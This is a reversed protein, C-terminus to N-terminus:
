AQGAIVSVVYESPVWGTTAPSGDEGLRKASSWGSEPDKICLCDGARLTMESADVADSFDYLAFHTVSCDQTNASALNFIGQRLDGFYVFADSGDQRRVPLWAQFNQVLVTEVSQIIIDGFSIMELVTSIQPEAYLKVHTSLVRWRNGPGPEPLAIRHLCLSLERPSTEDVVAWGAKFNLYGRVESSMWTHGGEGNEVTSASGRSAGTLKCLSESLERIDGATDPSTEFYFVRPLDEDLTYSGAFTCPTAQDVEM